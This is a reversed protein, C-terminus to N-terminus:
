EDCVIVLVREDGQVIGSGGPAPNALKSPVFFAQLEDHHDSSLHTNNYRYRYRVRIYRIEGYMQQGQFSFNVNYDAIPYLKVAKDFSEKTFYPYQGYFFNYVTDQTFHPMSTNADPNRLRASWTAGENTNSGPSVPVRAFRRGLLTRVRLSNSNRSGILRAGASAITDAELNRLCSAVKDQVKPDCGALSPFQELVGELYPDNYAPMANFPPSDGMAGVFLSENNGGNAILHFLTSGAGASQGWITVRSSASMRKETKGRSGAHDQLVLNLQGDRQSGVLFGFQWLRYAFSVFVFPRSADMSTQLTINPIAERTNGGQYGGGHFWAMVPLKASLDPPTSASMFVNIFLCNESPNGM